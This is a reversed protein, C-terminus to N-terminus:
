IKKLVSSRVLPNRGDPLSLLLEQILVSGGVCIPCNPDKYLLRTEDLKEQTFTYRPTSEYGMQYFQTPNGKWSVLPNDFENGCLVKIGTEVAM